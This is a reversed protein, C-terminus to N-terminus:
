DAGLQSIQVARPGGAYLLASRPTKTIAAAIAGRIRRCGSFILRWPQVLVLAVKEGLNITRKRGASTADHGLRRGAETLGDDGGGDCLPDLASPLTRDKRDGCERQDILRDLPEVGHAHAVDANDLRVVDQRVVRPRDLDRAHLCHLAPLNWGGIQHYDVFRV